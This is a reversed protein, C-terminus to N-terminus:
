LCAMLLNAIPQICILHTNDSRTFIAAIKSMYRLKKAMSTHCLNQAINPGCAGEGACVRTTGNSSRPALDPLIQHM